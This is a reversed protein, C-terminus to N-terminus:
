AWYRGVVWCVAALVFSLYAIWGAATTYSARYRARTEGEYVFASDGVQRLRLRRGPHGDLGRRQHRHDPLQEALAAGSDRRDHDAARRDDAPGAGRGAPHPPVCGGADAPRGGGAGRERGGEGSGVPPGDDNGHEALTDPELRAAADLADTALRRFEDPALLRQYRIGDDDTLTVLMVPEGGQMVPLFSWM